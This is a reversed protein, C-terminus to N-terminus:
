LLVDWEHQISINCGVFTYERMLIAELLELKKAWQDKAINKVGCQRKLERSCYSNVDADLNAKSTLSKAVASACGHEELNRLENLFLAVPRKDNLGRFAGGLLGISYKARAVV